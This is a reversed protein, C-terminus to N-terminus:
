RLLAGFGALLLAALLEDRSGQLDVTGFDEYVTQEDCTVAVYLLKRREGRAVEAVTGSVPSM